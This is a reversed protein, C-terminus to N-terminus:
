KTAQSSLTYAQTSANSAAEKLSDKNGFTNSNTVGRLAGHRDAANLHSNAVTNWKHEEKSTTAYQSLHGAARAAANHAKEAISHKGAADARMAAATQNLVEAKAAEKDAKGGDGATWRGSSDREEEESYKFVKNASAAKDAADAKQAADKYEQSDVGKDRAVEHANTHAEGADRHAQREESTKAGLLAIGHQTAEHSHYDMASWRDSAHAESNGGSGSAFRGNDDRSQDEDYKRIQAAAAALKELERQASLGQDGGQSALDALFDEYDPAM